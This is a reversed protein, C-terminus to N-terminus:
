KELSREMEMGERFEGQIAAAAQDSPPVCPRRPLGGYGHYSQLASKVAVFGGHIAAWDARAVVAQARQAEDVKGSRYLEMVRVCSRPIVNAVGGIIGAGGVVLTQLTFDASGGFTLFGPKAAAAVRALKGTNGCTLKCGIINPHQSLALIDDSSLDLGSSAGPFNYILVPVPSADAVTRFHAYMAEINVLAKYYSPPLVLVADAGSAAADQCLQVTERTSAAGCGSIVPMSPYGAADVARRTAATIAKREDRDLHVAEGNSGQTVLGAVGTRALYAAHKETTPLDIEEDPRFFAVTPVYFGGTLPNRKSSGNAAM